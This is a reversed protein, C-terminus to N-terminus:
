AKSSDVLSTNCDIPNSFVPYYDSASSLYVVTSYDRTFRIKIERDLPHNVYEFTQSM